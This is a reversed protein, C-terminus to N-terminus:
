QEPHLCGSGAGLGQDLVGHVEQVLPLEAAGMQLRQGTEDGCSTRLKLSAMDTKFRMSDGASRRVRDRSSSFARATSIRSRSTSTQERVPPWIPAPSPTTSSVM